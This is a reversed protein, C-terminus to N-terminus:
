AVALEPVPDAQQTPIHPAATTVFDQEFEQMMVKPDVAPQLLAPLMDHCCLCGYGYIDAAPYLKHLYAVLMDRSFDEMRRPNIDLLGFDVLVDAQRLSYGEFGLMYWPMQDYHMFTAWKGNYMTSLGVLITQVTKDAPVSVKNLTEVVSDFPNDAIMGTEVLQTRASINM